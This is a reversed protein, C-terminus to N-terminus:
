PFHDAVVRRWTGTRYLVLAAGTLYGGLVALGLAFFLWDRSIGFAILGGFAVGLLFGSVVRLANSSERSRVTQTLWDIMAVSPCSGLIVGGLPTSVGAGFWPVTVFVTLIALFGFLEGTCRACFHFTREGIRLALTRGYRDPFHHAILYEWDAPRLANSPETPM